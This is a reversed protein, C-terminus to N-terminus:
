ASYIQVATKGGGTFLIYDGVSAGIMGQRQCTTDVTFTHTLSTDYIDIALNSTPYGGAFMAYSDTHASAMCKKATSLSTGVSRTLSSNYIDVTDHITDYGNEGGAFIAHNNVTEAAGAHRALSLGTTLTTDTMSSNLSHVQTTEGSDNNIAMNGILMYNTISTACASYVSYSRSKYSGTLSTGLYVINNSGNETNYFVAIQNNINGSAAAETTYAKTTAYSKTLSSLNYVEYAWNYSANNSDDISGGGVVMYNGINECSVCQTDLYSVAPNSKTLSKNFVTVNGATGVSSSHGKSFFAYSSSSGGKHNNYTNYRIALNTTSTSSHKEYSSSWVLTNDYYVKKVKTNSYYINSPVTNNYRLTKPM